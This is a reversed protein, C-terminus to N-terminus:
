VPSRPFQTISWSCASSEGAAIRGRIGSPRPPEAAPLAAAETPLSPPARCLDAAETPTDLPARCPDAAEDTPIFIAKPVVTASANVASVLRAHVTRREQWRWTYPGTPIRFAAEVGISPDHNQAEQSGTGEERSGGDTPGALPVSWKGAPDLASQM